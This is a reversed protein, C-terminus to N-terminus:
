SYHQNITNQTRTLAQKFKEEVAILFKWSTGSLEDDIKTKFAALDNIEQQTFYLKDPDLSELFYNFVTESFLDNVPRPSVHHELMKKKLQLAEQQPSVSPQALAARYFIIFVLSLISRLM